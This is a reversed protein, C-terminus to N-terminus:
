RPREGLTLELELREGDRLVKIAVREGAGIQELRSRLNGAGVPRGAIEFLVDGARAGSSALPGGVTLSRVAVGQGAALGGAKRLEDDVEGPVMGLYGPQARRLPLRLREVGRELALTTESGPEVDRFAQGVADADSLPEDGFAVIVDGARLGARAGPSGAEVATIRARERGAESEIEVRAGLWAIHHVFRPREDANALQEVLRYAMRVIRQMRRYDLKGAEDGPRHYDEHVGTFFFLFPVDIAYFTDHDSNGAYELGGFRLDLDYRRNAQEVRERMGKGYGDGIVDMARQSNRGIMDLNLMFVVHGTPILHQTVLARSGLLGQEEATFTVFLLSRRPAGAGVFAQALELVGSTGSANDDAGNYVTDGSGRFGGVHDHHAGIVIWEDRLVPDSGPLFAAVDRAAVPEREAARRVEVRARVGDWRPLERAPTGRDLERQLRSLSRAGGAAGIEEALERGIQLAVFPAPAAEADARSAAGGAELSFGGGLRLDDAGDHNLPDTVLLMGRAGHERATDAKAEFLAHETSRVGDFPSSPDNERPEHRLVLVLADEVDLGAYDDYALEPASIGYGAFVLPAEVVGDDSFGFPRFDIGVRATSRGAPLELGLSTHALDYAARYLTFDLFPSDAGPPPELGYRRLRSAVYEEARAVGAEGTDRGLLEDSALFEVHRRLDRARISSEGAPSRALVPGGVAPLALAALSGLAVAFRM